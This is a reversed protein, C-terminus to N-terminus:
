WEGDVQARAYTTLAGCYICFKQDDPVTRGKCLSHKEESCRNPEPKLEVGCSGCFNALADYEKKCIPCIKRM